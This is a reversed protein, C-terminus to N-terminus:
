QGEAAPAATPVPDRFKVVFTVKGVHVTSKPPYIGATGKGDLQYRNPNYNGPQM